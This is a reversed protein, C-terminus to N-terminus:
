CKKERLMLSYKEKRKGSSVHSLREHEHRLALDIFNKGAFVVSWFLIASLVITVKYTKKHKDNNLTNHRCVWCDSKVCKISAVSLNTELVFLCHIVM